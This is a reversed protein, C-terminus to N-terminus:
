KATHKIVLESHPAESPTEETESSAEPKPRAACKALGQAKVDQPSLCQSGFSSSCGDWKFPPIPMHAM